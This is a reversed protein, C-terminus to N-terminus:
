MGLVAVPLWGLSNSSTRRGYVYSPYRYPPATVIQLTGRQVNVSDGEVEALYGGLEVERHGDYARHVRFNGGQSLAEETV